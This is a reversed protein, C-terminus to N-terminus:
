KKNVGAAEEVAQQLKDAGEKTLSSFPLLLEDIVSIKKSILSIQRGRENKSIKDIKTVIIRYNIGYHACFNMLMLDDGSPIRRIDLLIFLTKLNERGKLYGEIMPQWKRKIEQSVKSFGYGPLDVMYFSDNILFYNIERTKGPERSVRALKKRGTLSNILSSKGVNSKGVFAVEPINGAPCGKLSVASKVFVSTKINM